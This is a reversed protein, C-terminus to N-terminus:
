FTHSESFFSVSPPPFGLIFIEWSFRGFLVIPCLDEISICSIMEWSEGQTCDLLYNFISIICAFHLLVICKLLIFNYYVPYLDCRHFICVETIFQLRRNFASLDSFKGSVQIKRAAETLDILEQKISKHWLLIEDIPCSVASSPLDFSLEMWKRKGTKSPECACYVTQSHYTLDRTGANQCHVKADNM